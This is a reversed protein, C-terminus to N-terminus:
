VLAPDYLFIYYVLSNKIKLYLNNAERHQCSWKTSYLTCIESYYNVFSLCFDYLSLSLTHGIPDFTFCFPPIIPEKRHGPKYPLFNFFVMNWGMRYCCWRQAIHGSQNVLLLCSPSPFVQRWGSHCSLSINFSKVM